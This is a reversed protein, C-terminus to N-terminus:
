QAEDGIGDVHEKIAKGQGKSQNSSDHGFPRRRRMKGQPLHRSHFPTKEDM